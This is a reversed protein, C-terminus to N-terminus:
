RARARGSRKVVAEPYEFRRKLLLYSQYTDLLTRGEGAEELKAALLKKITKHLEPEALGTMESLEHVTLPDYHGKLELYRRYETVDREPALHLRGGRDAVLLADSLRQLTDRAAALSLGARTALLGADFFDPLPRWADPGAPGTLSAIAELARANGSDSLFTALQRNAERLRATLRQMLRMAIEGNGRVLKEFTPQDIELVVTGRQAVIATASRPEGDLLAMEGFFEGPGLTALGVEHEGIRRVIRVRGKRVVYMREGAQGEEFLVTGSPFERAFKELAAQEPDQAVADRPSKEAM